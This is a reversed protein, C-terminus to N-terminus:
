RTGGKLARELYVDRRKEFPAHDYDPARMRAFCLDCVYRYNCRECQGRDRTRFPNKIQVSKCHACTLTALENRTSGPQVGMRRALEPPLGPSAKHDVLLYGERQKM